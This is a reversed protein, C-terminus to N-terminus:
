TLSSQSGREFPYNVKNFLSEFYGAQALTDIRARFDLLKKPEKGGWYESTVVSKLSYRIKSAHDKNYVQISDRNLHIIATGYEWSSAKNQNHFRIDIKAARNSAESLHCTVPFKERLLLTEIRLLLAETALNRATFFSDIKM